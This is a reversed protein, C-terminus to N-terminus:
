KKKKEPFKKKFILASLWAFLAGFGANIGTGIVLNGYVGIKMMTQVVNADAGQQVALMVQEAFREPYVYFSIIGIIAGLFGVILGSYAGHRTIEKINLKEKLGIYGITGFGFITLLLGFLWGPFVKDIHISLTFILDLISFGVLVYISIDIVDWVDSFSKKKKM